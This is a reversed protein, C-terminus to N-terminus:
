DNFLIWNEFLDIGYACYYFTSGLVTHSFALPILYRYRNYLYTWFVGAAATALTIWLDPLHVLAYSIGTCTIAAASPLLTRLRGLLYFQFLTQQVLAWPFYLCLAILIHWNSLCQLSTISGKEQYTLAVGMGLLLIILSFTMAAIKILCSRFREPTNGCSPFQAWVVNKTFNANFALLTLAILALAIDLYIPRHPFLLLFLATLLGLTVLELAIRKKLTLTAM